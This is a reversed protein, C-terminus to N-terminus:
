MSSSSSTPKNEPGKYPATDHLSDTTPSMHTTAGTDAVWDPNETTVHCQAQFAQALHADHTSASAFSALRPCKNAYHGDTRCLQCHPPRRSGRSLSQSGSGRSFSPSRGKGASSTSGRSRQQNATFAVPSSVPTPHLTQLFNEHSEAKTVLDRFALVDRNTRIATSFNEFSSGLGCLFWHTKDTDTVPHGIAALQDCIAKFKRSFDTVSASGKSIQRLSDRLLHM